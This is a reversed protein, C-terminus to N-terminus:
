RAFDYASGPRSGGPQSITRLAPDTLAVDWAANGLFLVGFLAFRVLFAPAGIALLGSGPGGERRPEEPALAPRFAQVASADSSTM